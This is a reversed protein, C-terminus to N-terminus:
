YDTRLEFILVRENNQGLPKPFVWFEVIVNFLNYKFIYDLIIDLDPIRKLKPDYYSTSINWQCNSMLGRTKNTVTNSAFLNLTELDRSLYIDGHLTYTCYNFGSVAISFKSTYNPVLSLIQEPSVNFYTLGLPKSMDRIIYLKQQTKDIFDSIENIDHSTFIEEPLHNLNLQRIKNISEIKSRIKM